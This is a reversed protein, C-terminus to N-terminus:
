ETMYYALDAGEEKERALEGNGLFAFRNPSIYQFDFDEGRIKEVCAKFHLVSGAYMAVVRHPDRAGKTYWSDCEDAWVTRQLQEQIYVNFDDVVDPKVCVSKIGETAIKETWEVIYDALWGVARTVSGHGIPCNPGHFMFFNPTHPVCTSFYANQNSKKWAANVEFGDRGVLKFPPVFDVDFGTACVILDFEEEKGDTTEIGGSTFRAIPTFNASANDAQLAELYGDGPTLRRCGITYNPIFKAALDDDNGLRAKMLNTCMDKFMANIPSGKLMAGYVFNLSHELQKRYALFEEPSSEFTRKQEDSYEFNAGQPTFQGGFNISIWTPHRIYNVVKKATKQLAPVIQIGSSGNGIVAIRKGAYDYSPDWQTSHMLKGKFDNLGPIQPWSWKNLIGAGSILIDAVDEIIKDGQQVKIKWKGSPEDWISETIKSNLQVLEDLKYKKTTTEIYDLIEDGSAYFTSWNPNPEFDFTYVHSPADCCLGPFRNEAWTGGVISNKDYIVFDVYDGLKKKSYKIRHALTLGSFGAGICILRLKRPTFAFQNADIPVWNKPRGQPLTATGNEDAM